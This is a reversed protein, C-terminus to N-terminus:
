EFAEMALKLVDEKKFCETLEETASAMAFSDLDMIKNLATELKRVFPTPTCTHIGEDATFKLCRPCQTM